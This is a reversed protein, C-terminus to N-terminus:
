ATSWPCIAGCSRPPTTPDDSCEELSGVGCPWSSDRLPTVSSSTRSTQAAENAVSASAGETSLRTNVFWWAGIVALQCFAALILAWFGLHSVRFVQAVLIATVALVFMLPAHVSQEAVNITRNGFLSTKARLVWWLLSVACLSLYITNPRDYRYWEGRLTAYLVFYLGPALGVFAVATLWPEAKPWNIAVLRGFFLFAGCGISLIIAESLSFGIWDQLESGQM